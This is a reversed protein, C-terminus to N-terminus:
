GLWGPCSTQQMQDFSVLDAKGTNCLAELEAWTLEGADEELDRFFPDIMMCIWCDFINRWVLCQVKCIECVTSAGVSKSRKINHYFSM